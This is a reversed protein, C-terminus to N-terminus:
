EVKREPTYAIVTLGSPAVLSLRQEHGGEVVEGVNWGLEHARAAVAPLDTTRGLLSWTPGTEDSVNLTKWVAWTSGDTFQPQGLVATVDTTTTSWRSSAHMISVREFLTGFGHAREDPTSTM